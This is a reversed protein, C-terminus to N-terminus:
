GALDVPERLPSYAARYSIPGVVPALLDRLRIPVRALRSMRDTAAQVHDVRPRRRRDFEGGVTAWDRDGALLAALVLADELALAAGQAWVPATAHAADGILAVRGASWRPCRVEQVPSHYLTGPHALSEQVVTPVPAPFAGFTTALWGPDADASGGRTAAGYGYVLGEAVPILLFTADRGSWVTWCDVGPDPGVFRWSAETMLSSRIDASETVAPRVASRVGDAGVVFDYTETEGSALTVEVRDGAPEVREVVTNWRPAVDQGASLIELLTGRRICVSPAGWFSEEDVTFLLRGSGSRYERRRILRGHEAVRDAVGLTALARVANGPLNLGLGPDAPPAARDVLTCPVGRDALARSLAMGAIGAGVILVHGSM